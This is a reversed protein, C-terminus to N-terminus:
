SLSSALDAAAEMAGEIYSVGTCDGVTHVNFGESSLSEALALDSSAGQAVVVQDCSVSRQQGRATTYAVGSAEIRVDGCRRQLKVGLEELEALLRMRRVLYLGRGAHSSPEVVTVTRGREALFEALELGVLEGGIIVVERGLPLWAKSALRVLRPNATAGTVAGARVMFRTTTSTKRRLSDRDEALVLARMEDGSFVFDRDSGPLDPMDRRAGTAVVVDKVGLAQLVAPSATTNLKVEVTSEEVQRKLWSLLRGNPEYAISAFQM